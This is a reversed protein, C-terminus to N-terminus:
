KMLLTKFNNYVIEVLNPENISKAILVYEDPLLQPKFKKGAVKTYPGDSEILFKNRPINNIIDMNVLMNTNVSFYCELEIFKKQIAPNGTYWHLICRNPTYKKLIELAEMEAGRIHISMLKNNDASIKVIRDFFEMQQRRPIGRSKTFDLGIEGIYSTQTLLYVFDDLDKNKLDANLPHFGLAFRIYKSDQFMRKCSLFVGPSNTMCLTYQKKENIYRYVDEYNAYM